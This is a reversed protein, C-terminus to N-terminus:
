VNWFRSRSRSRRLGALANCHIGTVACSGMDYAIKAAAKHGIVTRVREKGTM